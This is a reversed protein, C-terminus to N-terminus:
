EAPEREAEIKAQLREGEVTDACYNYPEARAAKVIKEYAGHPLLGVINGDTDPSWLTKADTPYTLAYQCPADDDDIDIRLAFTRAHKLPRGNQECDFAIVVPIEILM